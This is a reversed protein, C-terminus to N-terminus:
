EIEEFGKVETRREKGKGYKTILNQFYAICFENLHKLDHAVQKLGAEINRIEEDAKFSDFKSIRKIKIETLRVIDEETIERRFLKKYPKLGKDITQIVAEWTEAEEINRYIRKEIFIKELSSFHWRENLAAQKIQLERKLLDKTRETSRELIENVSLFMPKDEVIVCANTSISSQCDTFAYLADITVDADSGPALDILIEVHKATNDTVKKIKIKGKDNAKLISEILSTTTTGFPIERIALTKKDVVEIKARVKVKGGREGKNYEAVDVFGGTPFDPLLRFRKGELHNISAECLEIFNHPLIKTSLGM